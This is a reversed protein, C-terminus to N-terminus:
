NLLSSVQGLVYNFDENVFSYIAKDEESWGELSPSYRVMRVEYGLLYGMLYGNPEGGMYATALLVSGSSTNCYVNGTYGNELEAMSTSIYPDSRAPYYIVGIPTDRAVLSLDNNVGGQSPLEPADTDEPVVPVVPVDSVVPSDTVEPADSVEPVDTTEPEDTTEPVVTTEPVDTTETVEDSDDADTSVTTNDSLLEFSYRLSPDVIRNVIAAVEYRKILGDAKCNYLDDAGKFIGARYFKYIVDYYDSDLVLDPISGDEIRNIEKLDTPPIVRSFIDICEARSIDETWSYDKDIIGNSKCYEVYPQYWTDDSEAVPASDTKHQHTKAAIQVIEAYTVNVNPAFFEEDKYDMLGLDYVSKIDNYYPSDENVDKFISSSCASFVCVIMMVTVLMVTIKSLIKM